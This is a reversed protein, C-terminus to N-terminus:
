LKSKGALSARSKHENVTSCNSSRCCKEKLDRMRLGDLTLGQLKTASFYVISWYKLGNRSFNLFLIIHTLIIEGGGGFM